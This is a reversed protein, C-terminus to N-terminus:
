DGYWIKELDKNIIKIHRIKNVSKTTVRKLTKKIKKNITQTIIPKIRM